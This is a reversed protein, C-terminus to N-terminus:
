ANQKEYDQRNIIVAVKEIGPLNNEKGEFYNLRRLDFCEKLLEEASLRAYYLNDNEEAEKYSVFNVVMGIDRKIRMKIIQM